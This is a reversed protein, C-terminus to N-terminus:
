ERLDDETMLGRRIATGSDDILNWEVAWFIFGSSVKAAILRSRLSQLDMDESEFECTRGGEFNEVCPGVHVGPLATAALENIPHANGFYITILGSLKM